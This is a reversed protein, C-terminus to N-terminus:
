HFSCADVVAVTEDHVAADGRLVPMDHDRNKVSLERHLTKAAVPPPDGQAGLVGRKRIDGDWFKGIEGDPSHDGPHQVPSTSDSERQM